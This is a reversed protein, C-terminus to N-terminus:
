EKGRYYPSDELRVISTSDEKKYFRTREQFLFGIVFGGAVLMGIVFSPLRSYSEPVPVLAGSVMSKELEISSIYVRDAEPDDYSIGLFLTHEDPLPTEVKTDQTGGDVNAITSWSYYGKRNEVLDFEYYMIPDQGPILYGPSHMIEGNANITQVVFFDGLIEGDLRDIEFNFSIESTDKVSLINFRFNLGIEQDQLPLSTKMTVYIHPFEHHTFSSTSVEWDTDLSVDELGGEEPRFQLAVYEVSFLFVDKESSLSIIPNEETDIDVGLEGPLSHQAHAIPALAALVIFAAAAVWISKKVTM